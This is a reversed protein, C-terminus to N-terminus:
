KENNKEDLCICMAAILAMDMGPAIEVAYTQQGFLVDKGSLIKRNIRAVVIGGQAEDVIDATTDFWNGHMTLREQRGNHSTFTATAKSGMLKFSSKVEMIKEGNPSEVKFTAHIHLHEKVISFLHVGAMDTVKKRGSISMIKGEVQLIPTGNALKISFSDGTLSLVKERLVISEPGNAFFQPFVGIAQSVPALAAM